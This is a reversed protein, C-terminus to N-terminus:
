LGPLDVSPMGLRGGRLRRSRHVLRRAVTVRSHVGTTRSEVIVAL